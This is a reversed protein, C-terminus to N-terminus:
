CNGSVSSLGLSIRSPVGHIKGAGWLSFLNLNSNQNIGCSEQRNQIKWTQNAEGFIQDPGLTRREWRRRFGSPAQTFIKLAIM